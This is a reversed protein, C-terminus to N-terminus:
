HDNYIHRASRLSVPSVLPSGIWSIQAWDFTLIGMGLGTNTGFLTNVTQNQPAIWCVWNFISLATFLYGPLFYYTASAIMAYLFFRERSIHKKEKKGYNKHLATLLACDVLAGPWIMAAPWVLFQRVMGSIAYGFLQTSLALLIQYGFTISQNYFARQSAFVATVYVDQSIANGMITIVTHEKINFPGPNFSWVYGFTNFRKTPFVWELFKGCPLAVLQVILPSVWVSPGRFEIFHNIASVIITFLLGLFWARFTNVPMSPDDVNSVAARVEPYPSDSRLYTLLISNCTRLPLGSKLIRRQGAFIYEPPGAPLSQRLNPTSTPVENRSGARFRSTGRRMSTSLLTATTQLYIDFTM